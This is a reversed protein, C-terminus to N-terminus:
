KPKRCVSDDTALYWSNKDGLSFDNLNAFIVLILHRSLNTSFNAFGFHSLKNVKHLLLVLLLPWSLNTSHLETSRHLFSKLVKYFPANFQAPRTNKHILHNSDSIFVQWGSTQLPSMPSPPSWSGSCNECLQYVDINKTTEDNQLQNVEIMRLVLTPWWSRGSSSAWWGSASRTSSPRQRTSSSSLM